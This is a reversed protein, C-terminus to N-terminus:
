FPNLFYNNVIIGLYKLYKYACSLHKLFFYM